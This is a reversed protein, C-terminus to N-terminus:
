KTKQKITASKKQKPKYRYLDYKGITGVNELLEPHPLSPGGAIRKYEPKTWYFEAKDPQINGTLLGFSTQIARRWVRKKQETDFGGNMAERYPQNAYKVADLRNFLHTDWDNKKWEGRGYTTMMASGAMKMYQKQLAEDKVGAFEGYLAQALHLVRADDPNTARLKSPPIYQPVPQITDLVPVPSQTANNTM